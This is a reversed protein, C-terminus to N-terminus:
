GGTGSPLGLSTLHSAVRRIQEVMSDVVADVEVNTPLDIAVDVFKSRRFFRGGQAGLPAVADLISPVPPQRNYGVQLWIPTAGHDAWRGASFRLLCRVGALMLYRGWWGDGWSNGLHTGENTRTSAIGEAVSQDAARGILDTYQLLRDAVTASLDDVTLPVFRQSEM